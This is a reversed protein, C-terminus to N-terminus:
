LRFPVGFFMPDVNQVSLGLPTLPYKQEDYQGKDVPECVDEEDMVETSETGISSGKRAETPQFHAFQQLLVLGSYQEQHGGLLQFM